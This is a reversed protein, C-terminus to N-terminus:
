TVLLRVPANYAVDSWQEPNCCVARGNEPDIGHRRCCYPKTCNPFPTCNFGCCSAGEPSVLMNPGWGGLVRVTSMRDTLPYTHNGGGWDWNLLDTDGTAINYGHLLLLLLSM